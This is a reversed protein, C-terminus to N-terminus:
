TLFERFVFGITLFTSNIIHSERHIESFFPPYTGMASFLLLCYLLKIFSHSLYFFCIKNQFLISLSYRSIICYLYSLSLCCPHCQNPQPILHSQLSDLNAPFALLYLLM